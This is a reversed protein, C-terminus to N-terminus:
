SRKTGLGKRDIHITISPRVRISVGFSPVPFDGFVEEQLRLTLNETEPSPGYFRKTGQVGLTFANIWTILYIIFVLSYVTRSSIEHNSSIFKQPQNRTLRFKARRCLPDFFRVCSSEKPGGTLKKFTRTRHMKRGLRRISHRDESQHEM